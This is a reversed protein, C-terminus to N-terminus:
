LALEKRFEAGYLLELDEADFSRTQEPEEPEPEPAPAPEPKATGFPDVGEDRKAIAEISHDQQQRYVTDGGIPLPPLNARRRQEDITMWDSASKNSEYLSATDMRLLNEIDFETGMPKPIDLGEDLCLEAKEILEQLCDSYYMVILSQISDYTPYVGNLKFLPYHFARAVDEVSFKLQETLQAHDATITTPDWKLGDGLVATKGYNTGSFNAQWDQKLRNATDQSIEGPATLVGSPISANSFLRQSNALAKSQMTASNACAFLPSVGVLPHWLEAMRDHIIERAPIAVEAEADTIGSLYDRKVQYWVSGDEAVLPTVCLPHLPYLKVVVGRGDREKLIYANGYLLKSLIWQQMFQIRNQYHNPKRLVPSFSASETEVWIGETGEKEEVLRIPLKAIDSSIGTVCAYVASSALLTPKDSAVIVNQQWAGAYSETIPGWGHNWWSPVSQLNQAKRRTIEFGLINM